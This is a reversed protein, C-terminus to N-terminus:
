LSAGTRQRDYWAQFMLITWLKYHWRRKGRRHEEWMRVIPEAEFIGDRALREPSLLNDAWEVLPGRLWEDIPVGFGMKPRDILAQPVHRYLLQRLIHKGTQGQIKATMPLQWAFAAVDPDLFPVRSELSVAMSARDVKTLIDGPLYTMTDLYMM